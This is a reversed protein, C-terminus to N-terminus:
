KKQFLKTSTYVRMTMATIARRVAIESGFRM